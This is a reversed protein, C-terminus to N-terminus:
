GAYGAEMCEFALMDVGIMWADVQDDKARDIVAVADAFPETPEIGDADELDNNIWRMLEAPDMDEPNGDVEGLVYVLSDCIDQDLSEPSAESSCGAILAATILTATIGWTRMSRITGSGLTLTRRPPM